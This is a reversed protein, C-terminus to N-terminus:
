IFRLCYLVFVGAPLIIEVSYALIFGTIIGAILYIM